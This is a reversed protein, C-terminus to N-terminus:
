SKQTQNAISFKDALRNYLIQIREKAFRTLHNSNDLYLLNNRENYGFYHGDKSVLFPMYDIVECKQCRKGVEAIRERAFFADQAIMGRKIRWLAKGKRTFEQAILACSLFCSPLAQLIYVKKTLGEIRNMMEMHDKFIKDDDYPKTTDFKDKANISRSILFVVDPKLEEVMATYNIRRECIDSSSETMIECASLCFINFKRAHRKFANYIVDGQNCAFSNGLVLFDHNGPGDEMSCFGLPKIDEGVFRDSYTCGNNEINIRPRTEMYNLYRMMTLNWTADNINMSTYDVPADGFENEYISNPQLALVASVVVLSGILALIVNPPWKSYNKEFFLYSISALGFSVAIGLLLALPHPSYYRTIIYVPWHFLYLSYSIDGIYVIAPNCLLKTQIKYKVKIFKKTEHINSEKHYSGIVILIASFVTVYIRFLDGSVPVRLFPVAIALSFICASIIPLKAEWSHDQGKKAGSDPLFSSARERRVEAVNVEAQWLFALIGCCFQWIRAFVSYFADEREASIYYFLSCFAVAAFFTKEFAGACRQILFLIPALLYWQMELCLSWMHVFLDEAKELMKEYKQTDDM